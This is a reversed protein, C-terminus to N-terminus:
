YARGLEKLGRLREAAMPLPGHGPATPLLRELDAAGMEALHDGDAMPEGHRAAAGLSAMVGLAEDDRGVVEGDVLAAWRVCGPEPYYSFNMANYALLWAALAEPDSGPDGPVAWTPSRLDDAGVRQNAVAVIASRDVRVRDQAALAEACGQRLVAVWSDKM